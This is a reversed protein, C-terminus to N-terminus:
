DEPELQEDLDEPRGQGEPRHGCADRFGKVACPKCMVGAYVGYSTQEDIDDAPQKCRPCIGSALCDDLYSM